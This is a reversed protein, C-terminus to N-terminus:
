FHRGIGLGVKFGSLNLCHSRVYPSYREHPFSFRQYAYNVFLDAFYNECFTYQIGSQFIGGVQEKSIHQHVYCSHDRIRLINYSIGGGIYFETCPALCCFYKIGLSIPYLKLHTHDHAYSSRGEQCAWNFGIWGQWNCWFRQTVEVQLDVWDNHYIKQARKSSPHFYAAKFELGVKEWATLPLIATLIFLFISSMLRFSM